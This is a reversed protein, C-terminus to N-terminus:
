QTDREESDPGLVSNLLWYIETTYLTGKASPNTEIDLDERQCRALLRVVATLLEGHSALCVRELLEIDKIRM